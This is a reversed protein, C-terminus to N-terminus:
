VVGYHNNNHVQLVGVHWHIVFTLGFIRHMIPTGFLQRVGNCGEGFGFIWNM